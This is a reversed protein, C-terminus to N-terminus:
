RAALWVTEAGYATPTSVTEMTVVGSPGAWATLAATIDAHPLALDPM